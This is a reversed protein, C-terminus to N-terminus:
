RGTRRRRFMTLGATFFILTTPEPAYVDVYDFTVTATSPPSWVGAGFAVTTTPPGWPPRYISVLDQHIPQPSDDDWKLAVAGTDSDIFIAAEHYAGDAPAIDYLVDPGRGQPDWWSADAPGFLTFRGDLIGFTIQSQAGLGMLFVFRGSYAAVEFGTQIALPGTFPYSKRWAAATETSSDVQRIGNGGYGYDGPAIGTDIITGPPSWVAAWGLDGPLQDGTCMEVLPLRLPHDYGSLDWSITADPLAPCVGCLGLVLMCTVRVIGTGPRM